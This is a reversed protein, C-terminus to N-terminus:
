ATRLALLRSSAPAGGSAAAAEAEVEAEAAEAGAAEAARGAADGPAAGGCPSGRSPLLVRAIPTRASSRLM